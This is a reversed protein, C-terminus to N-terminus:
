VKRERRVTCEIIYNEKVNAPITLIIKPIKKINKAQNWVSKLFAETLRFSKQNKKSFRYVTCYREFSKADADTIFERKM